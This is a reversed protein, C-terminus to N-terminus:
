STFEQPVNNSTTIRDNAMVVAADGSGLVRALQRAQKSLFRSANAIAEERKESCLTEPLARQTKIVTVLLNKRDAQLAQYVVAELGRCSAASVYARQKTVSKFTGKKCAEYVAAFNERYATKQQSIAERKCDARFQKFEEQTYWCDQVEKKTRQQQYKFTEKHVRGKHDIVFSVGKKARPKIPTADGEWDDTLSTTASERMLEVAGCKVVGSSYSNPWVNSGRVNGVLSFRKSTRSTRILLAGSDIGGAAAANGGIPINSFQCVEVPSNM